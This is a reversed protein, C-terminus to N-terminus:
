TRSLSLCIRDGKPLKVRLAPASEDAPCSERTFVWQESRSVDLGLRSGDLMKDLITHHQTLAPLEMKTFWDWSGGTPYDRRIYADANEIRTPEGIWQLWNRAGPDVFGYDSGKPEYFALEQTHYLFAAPKHTRADFLLHGHDFDKEDGLHRFAKLYEADVFSQILGQLRPLDLGAPLGPKLVAPVPAVASAQASARIPVPVAALLLALAAAAPLLNRRM